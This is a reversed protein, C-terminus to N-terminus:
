ETSGLTGLDISRQRALALVSEYDDKSRIPVAGRQQVLMMPLRNQTLVSAGPAPVVGFLLRRNRICFEAQTMSGSREEGEVIISACSLGVQIRNRLVFNEPRAPGGFPHESVWAGGQELIRDALPANARPSAKELGHALVAVTPSPGRLAGEHAAADIGLALGSVVTWQHSSLFASIREAITVGHPTAKRTGVVAIGVQSLASMSGRVYLIAPADAIQRLMPPYAASSIPVPVIGLDLGQQLVGRAWAASAGLEGPRIAAASLLAEASSEISLDSLFRLLLSRVSAQSQKGSRLLALTAVSLDFDPASDM